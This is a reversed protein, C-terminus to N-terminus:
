HMNNLLNRLKIIACINDYRLITDMFMDYRLITDIFMDKM